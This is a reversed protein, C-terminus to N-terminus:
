DGMLVCTNPPYTYPKEELKKKELHLKQYEKVQFDKELRVERVQEETSISPIVNISRENDPTTTTESTTSLIDWQPPTPHTNKSRPIESDNNCSNNTATTNCNNYKKNSSVNEIAELLKSIMIDKTRCAEKLPQLQEQCLSDGRSIISASLTKESKAKFKELESKFIGEVTKQLEIIIEYKFTAHHTKKLM